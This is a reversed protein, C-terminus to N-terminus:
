YGSYVTHQSDTINVPKGGEASMVYLEEGDKTVLIYDDSFWGYPIYKSASAISDANLGNADSVLVTHKGDLHEVWLSKKGSPSAYFIEGFDYFRDEDIITTKPSAAGVSYEFFKNSSDTQQWIYFTAPSLRAYRIYDNAAYSALQKHGQGTASIVSLSNKKNEILGESPTEDSSSWDKAYYVSEGATMIFAYHEYFSTSSDGVASTQDLLTIKGTGANYSKLKDRGVQWDPFDNRISYYILNDGAWGIPIYDANGSDVSLLKDDETSLIHLQATSYNTTRRAQLLVYKWDPSPLLLTDYDREKGTGAVVVKEDSGDLNAKIVNLRGADDSLFYVMGAPTLTFNNEEVASDDVKLTVESENYGKLSLTAKQEAEGAPLVMITEGNKDTKATTNAAKIDVDTLAKQTIVNKVTIKVQRGTATLSLTPAPKQGFIPVLINVKQDQYYKKSIQIAHNGASLHLTARGNGDTHSNLSGVSVTAGSVPTRSTSDLIEITFNKKVVLGATKYRSWPVAALILLVVLVTAPIAWKKHDGYWERFRQWRSGGITIKKASQPETKQEPVPEIEQPETQTQSKQEDDM